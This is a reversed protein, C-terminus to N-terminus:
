AGTPLVMPVPVPLRAAVRFGGESRAGASFEGHLLGVRERMGVLGYGPVAGSAPGRGSDVVEIALEDDHHEISVRCQRTGSHRVVNTVSEQIIRYASLDIDAPLPRREGSWRVDVRVGADASSAALREVDDLGLSPVLLMPDSEGERLAGLMRRLGSLTERSAGEITELARRAGAPQTDIVRSAAGSQIAIIGMSHAVMDHLERAIRLREATVAQTTARTRLEVEHDRRDRVRLAAMVSVTLVLGGIEGINTLSGPNGDFAITGTLLLVFTLVAAPIWVKTPRAVVVYYLAFDAGVFTLYRNAGWGREDVLALIGYATVLGMTLAALPTRRLVLVATGMVLAALILYRSGNDLHRNDNPRIRM